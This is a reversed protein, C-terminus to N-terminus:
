VAECNSCDMEYVISNGYETAVWDKPKCPHKRTAKETYFTSGIKHSILIRRLKESTGEVYLLSISM